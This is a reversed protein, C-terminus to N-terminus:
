LGPTLSHDDPPWELKAGSGSLRFKLVSYEMGMCSSEAQVDHLKMPRSRLPSSRRVISRVVNVVILKCGGDLIFTSMEDEAVATSQDCDELRTEEFNKLEEPAFGRSGECQEQTVRM